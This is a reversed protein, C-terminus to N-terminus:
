NATVATAYIQGGGRPMNILVTAASSNITGITNAGVAIISPGSAPKVTITIPTNLPLNSCRVVIPIPNSQQGAIIADPIALMGAPPSNVSVGGVTAISLQSGEGPAPLIIPQYGQTMEGYTVGGFNLDFSDLRIRGAGGYGLFATEYGGWGGRVDIVGSGTIKSAILRIAGGSGGGGACSGYGGTNLKGGVAMLVARSVIEITGSAAIILAGGGGCGGWYGGGGGGSGGLLPLLFKNGYISSNVAHGGCDLNAEGETAYAGAFAGTNAIAGLASGGGPGQGSTPLSGANGGRFGGPGGPGGSGASPSKGSLDITGEVLCDGQVLWVVPTNNQNPTFTVTVGSPVNVSTFQYVGNPRDGMNINTSVTPNFVGDSGNSGSNVQAHLVGSM